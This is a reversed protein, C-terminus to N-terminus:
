GWAVVAEERTVFPVGIKEIWARPPDAGILAFVQDCSLEREADGVKLVISTPRVEKVSSNFAIELRGSKALENVQDLNRKKVRSFEGKRYSLTVTTGEAQALAVAAEIASDGGGVVVVNRGKWEAADILNYAVRAPIEGACGLKRPNGRTGIALLVYPAQYEGKATRVALLGDKKGIDTAEEFQNVQLGSKDVITKWVAMLTDKDADMMPLAGYLPVKIPEALVAKDRPYNKITSAVTDRELLLYRLGLRKAELAAGLGGPGAGVIIVDHSAAAVRPKKEVYRMADTGQNIATKILAAGIVEGAFFLGPMSKAENHEDVDPRDVQRVLPATSVRIAGTPCGQECISCGELAICADPNVVTSKGHDDGALVQKPCSNYCSSCSICAEVDVQPFPLIEGKPAEAAPAPAEGGPGKGVASPPLKPAELWRRVLRM